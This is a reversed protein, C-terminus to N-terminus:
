LKPKVTALFLPRQNLLAALTLVAANHANLCQIPLPKFNPKAAYRNQSRLLISRKLLLESLIKIVQQLRILNQNQKVLAGIMAPREADM